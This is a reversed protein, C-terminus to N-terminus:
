QILSDRTTYLKVAIESWKQTVEQPSRTGVGGEETRGAPGRIWRQGGLNVPCSKYLVLGSWVGEVDERIFSIMQQLPCYAPCVCGTYISYMVDDLLLKASSFCRKGKKRKGRGKKIKKRVMDKKEKRKKESM